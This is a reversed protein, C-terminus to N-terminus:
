VDYVDDVENINKYGSEECWKYHILNLSRYFFSESLLGEGRCCNDSSQLPDLWHLKGLLFM